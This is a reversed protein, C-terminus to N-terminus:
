STEFIELKWLELPLYQLGQSGMWEGMSMRWAGGHWGDGDGDAEAMGCSRLSVLCTFVFPARSARGRAAGRRSRCRM